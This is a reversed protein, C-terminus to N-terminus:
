FIYGITIPIMAIREDEINTYLSNTASLGNMFNIYKISIFFREIEFGGGLQFFIKTNTEGDSVLDYAMYNSFYMKTTALFALGGGGSLYGHPKQASYGLNVKFEVGQTIINLDGGKNINTYYYDDEMIHPLHFYDVGFLIETRSSVGIGIKISGNFGNKFSKEFENPTAATSFGGGLYIKVSSRKGEASLNLSLGLIFLIIIITQKLM